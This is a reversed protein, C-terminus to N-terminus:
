LKGVLGAVGAVLMSALFWGAVIAVWRWVSLAGPLWTPVSAKEWVPEALPRWKDREGLSIIPLSLDVAFGTARFPSYWSPVSGRRAVFEEFARQDTPGMLGVHYATGFVIANAVWLALLWVAARLPKYGNRIVHWLVLSWFWSSWSLQAYKRRDRAMGVLVDCAEAEYGQTRLVQALQRYPQPRFQGPRQAREKPLQGRLWALRANADGPDQLRQYVFGDLVLHGDRPWTTLDDDLVACAASELVIWTDAHIRTRYIFLRGKINAHRVNLESGPTSFDAERLDLDGRIEAALALVGGEARFGERLLVAGDIKAGEITLVRTEGRGGDGFRASQCELNARIVALRLRVEGESRFGNRLHVGGGINAMECDLAVAGPNEFVAGDCELNSGISAQFLRVEGEVHTEILILPGRIRVGNALIAVKATNSDSTRAGGIRGRPLVLSALEARDLNMGCPFWCGIMTIPFPIAAFSLKLRGDVRAAKVWIGAVQTRAVTDLCLWSLLAARIERDAGWQHAYEPNNEPDSPDKEDTGCDALEGRPASHLLRHEAESLQGFRSTALTELDSPAGEGSQEM